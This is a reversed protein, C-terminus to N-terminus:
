SSEARPAVSQLVVTGPDADRAIRGNPATIRKLRASRLTRARPFDEFSAAMSLHAARGAPLESPVVQGRTSRRAVIVGIEMPLVSGIPRIWRTCSRGVPGAALSPLAAALMARTARQTEPVKDFPSSVVRVVATLQRGTKVIRCTV